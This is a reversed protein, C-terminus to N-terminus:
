DEAHAGRPEHSFATAPIDQRPQAARSWQLALRPERADRRSYYLRFPHKGAQLRIAGSTEASAPAFACDFVTADHLRLLATAGAPLTFSYEGDTPAELYGTFLLADGAQDGPSALTAATGSTTPQLDDLRALWPAAKAYTSVRLGPEVKAPTSAPIFEDDYPRPASADPRRMRLVADHMKQQLEPMDAALNKTEKPDTVINYIEFPDRHAKIDYRVGVFDGERIAQMQGRVRGRRSEEFEPYTPTKQNNVYEVYVRSPKQSGKGTITPVLSVGDTRAPAAVGALEAFTPMWDHFQSPSESVRAGAAGGPWRVLSGVRIGGEWLDRKIGDFPGFSHFFTPEYAEPLYSERSPGNDTTFVVLTNQDIALDKLLQLLDGVTDDIRRVMTAYRQYVNPWPQEPTAADRDHDWTATAYDPHIYSDMTGEATNIVRGANGLWQVGGKAGGGAPYAGTPVQLKAHPTSHALYLFFPQQPHAARHETIWKKARATFLDTTYCGALEASIERENEWVQKGDAQPYQSHGDVHRVYGHYFDFGRKTPYSDWQQPTMKAQAAKDNFAPGGQLGWKGIAATAYGVGKLVSALTHNDALAKDFQNDRVNAHGQHVGLLLSARSPACVPAPCYHQRLQLGDAAMADLRPTMHWPEARDNKERRLNQFFVGYDGYGLDDTLIFIINPKTTGAAQSPVVAACLVASFIRVVRLAHPFRKM